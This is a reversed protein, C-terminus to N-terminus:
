SMCTYLDAYRQVQMAFFSPKSGSRFLSGFHPNYAKNVEENTKKIHKRLETIDQAIHSIAVCPLLKCVPPTTDNSDLDRFIEAKIFELNLLHTYKDQNQGQLRKILEGYGAILDCVWIKLEHQLEPIILLNRWGHVKKSKIIDAFIHDGTYM